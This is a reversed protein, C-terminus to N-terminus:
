NVMNHMSINQTDNIVAYIYERSNNKTMVQKSNPM